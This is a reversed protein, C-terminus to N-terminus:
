LYISKVSFGTMIVSLAASPRGVGSAAAFAVPNRWKLVGGVLAVCTEPEILGKSFFARFINFRL